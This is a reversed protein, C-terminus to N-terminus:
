PSSCNLNFSSSLFALDVIDVQGSANFDSYYRYPAQGGAWIGMDVINVPSTSGDCTASLDAATFKITGQAMTGVALDPVVVKYELGDVHGGIKKWRLDVAGYANTLAEKKAWRLTQGGVETILSTGGDSACVCFVSDSLVQIEVRVLAWEVPVSNTDRLTVKITLQDASGNPKFRYWQYTTGTVTVSSHNLDIVGARAEDARLVATSALCTTLTLVAYRAWANGCTM